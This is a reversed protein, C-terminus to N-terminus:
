QPDPQTVIGQILEGLSQELRLPIDKEQGCACTLTADIGHRTGWQPDAFTGDFEAWTSDVAQTSKGVDPGCKRMHALTELAEPTYDTWSSYVSRGAGKRRVGGHELLYKLVAKRYGAQWDGEGM